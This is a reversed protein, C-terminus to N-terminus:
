CWSKSTRQKRQEHITGPWRVDLLTNGCSCIEKFIKEYRSNQNFVRALRQKQPNKVSSHDEVKRWHENLIEHSITLEDELRDEKTSEKEGTDSISLMLNDVTVTREESYEVPNSLEKVDKTEDSSSGSNDIWEDDSNVLEAVTTTLAMEVEEGFKEEEIVASLAELDWEDESKHAEDSTVANGETPKKKLWCNRTIHGKKGCNYCKGEFRRNEQTQESLNEKRQAGGLHASREDEDKDVGNIKRAMPGFDEGLPIVGLGTVSPRCGEGGDALLAGRDAVLRGGDTWWVSHGVVVLKQINKLWETYERSDKNIMYDVLFKTIRADIGRYKLYKNFANKLTHDLDDFTPGEYAVQDESIEPHKFALREILIEDTYATCGFELVPGNKHSIRVILPIRPVDNYSEDDEANKLEPPHVEVTIKDGVFERRLIITGQRLCDEIEFPFDEPTEEPQHAQESEVAFKIEAEIVRLLSVDCDPKSNLHLFSRQLPNCSPRSVASSLAPAAQNHIYGRSGAAAWIALPVVKSAARRITHNLAM